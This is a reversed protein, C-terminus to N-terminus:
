RSRSIQGTYYLVKFRRARACQCDSLRGLRGSHINLAARRGWGRGCICRWFRGRRARPTPAAATSCPRTTSSRTAKQAASGSRRPCCRAAGCSSGRSRGRWSGSRARRSRRSTTCEERRSGDGASTGAIRANTNAEAAYSRSALMGVFCFSRRLRRVRRAAAAARARYPGSSRYHRSARGPCDGRRRRLAVAAGQRGADVRCAGGAGRRRRAVRAAM